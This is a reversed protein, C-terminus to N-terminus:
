KELTQYLPLHRYYVELMLLHMATIYIRGGELGWRDPVAGRPDWSGALGGAQTQSSILLTRLRENWAKWHDGQVQFMVQTAYYWYYSDRLPQARTGIAPLNQKLYDAGAIVNADNRQWGTYLRMLLGEATMALSTNRQHPIQSDPRYSYRSPSGSPGQASDLWHQVKVFSEPPVKLGALEGSKLAMMQWGSVSTDSGSQPAYRWGGQTPHQSAVIFDLAKQAPGKLQRDGTMGYAECLAIAAIGHSYYWVYKSGANFLDGDPKQHDVLWAVGAEVNDKYKGDTHTYGAGLFCLLSLGTAATDAQMQGASAQDAAAGGVAVNQLSWRGDALQQRALYDLGMEVARESGSSGGSSRAQQPRQEAKRASFAPSPDDFAKTDISPVGTSRERIFRSAVPLVAESDRRALRNPIGAEPSPQANLGGPGEVAAIQVPLLGSPRRAVQDTAPGQSGVVATSVPSGAVPGPDDAEALGAPLSALAGQRSPQGGSIAAAVPGVDGTDARRPASAGSPSLTGAAGVAPAGTDTRTLVAGPIGAVSRTPNGVNAERPSITSGGGAGAV